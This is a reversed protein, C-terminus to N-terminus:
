NDPVKVVYRSRFYDISPKGCPTGGSSYIDCPGAAVLPSAAVLGLALARARQLRQRSFM